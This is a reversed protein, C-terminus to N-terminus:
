QACKIWQTFDDWQACKVNPRSCINFKTGVVYVHDVACMQSVTCVQGAVSMHIVVRVQDVACVQDLIGELSMFGMTYMQSVACMSDVVSM